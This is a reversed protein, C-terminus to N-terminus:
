PAEPIYLFSEVAEEVLLSALRDFAHARQVAVQEGGTGPDAVVLHRSLTLERPPTSLLIFRVQLEARWSAIGRESGTHPEFSASQVVMRVTSGGEAGRQRIARALAGELSADLGPEAVAVVARGPSLHQVPPPSGVHYGCGSIGVLLTLGLPGYRGMPSGYNVLGRWM